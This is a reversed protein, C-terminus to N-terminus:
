RKGHAPLIFTESKNGEGPVIHAECHRVPSLIASRCASMAKPFVQERERPASLSSIWGEVVKM